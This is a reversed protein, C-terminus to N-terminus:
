KEPQCVNARLTTGLTAGFLVLQTFAALFPLALLAFGYTALVAPLWLIVIGIFSGIGVAKHQSPKIFFGQLTGILLACIVIALLKVWGPYEELITYVLYASLTSMIISFAAILGTKVKRM